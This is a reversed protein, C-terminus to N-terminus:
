AVAPQRPRGHRKSQKDPAGGPRDIAPGARWEFRCVLVADEGCQLRRLEIGPLIM